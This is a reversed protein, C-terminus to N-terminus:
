MCFGLVVGYQSTAPATQATGGSTNVYVWYSSNTSGTNSTATRLWWQYGKKRAAASNYIGTYDVGSEEGTASIEYKSPIWVTDNCKLTSQITNDYYTKEVEVIGNSVVVPLLSYYTNRLWTRMESAVWGNANTKTSNMQRYAVFGKSVWSIAAKGSGDAKDDADFAVIQMTPTTGDAVTMKKTDGVAYRTSYVGSSIAIAIQEWSDTIERTVPDVGSDPLVIEKEVRLKKLCKGGGSDIVAGIYLHTFKKAM